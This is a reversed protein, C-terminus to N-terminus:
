ISPPFKIEVKVTGGLLLYVRSVREIGDPNATLSGSHFHNWELRISLKRHKMVSKNEAQEYDKRADGEIWLTKSLIIILSQLLLTRV